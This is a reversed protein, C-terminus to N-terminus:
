PPGIAIPAESPKHLAEWRRWGRLGSGRQRWRRKSVGGRGCKGRGQQMLCPCAARRFSGAHSSTEIATLSCCACTCRFASHPFLLLSRLSATCSHVGQGTALAPM